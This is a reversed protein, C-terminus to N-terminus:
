SVARREESKRRLREFVEEGDLPKLRGSKIDDCRSDLMGRVQTLEEFYGVVADQLLEDTGRGSKSASENLKAELEPTFHVEM